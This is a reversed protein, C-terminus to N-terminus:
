RADIMPALGRPFVEREAGPAIRRRPKATVLVQLAFGLVLIVPAGFVLFTQWRGSDVASAAFTGVVIAGGICVGAIFSGSQRLRALTSTM